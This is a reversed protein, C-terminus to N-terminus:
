KRWIIYEVKMGEIQWNELNLDETGSFSDNIVKFEGILRYQIKSNRSSAYVNHHLDLNFKLDTRKALISDISIGVFSGYEDKIMSSRIWIDQVLMSDYCDMSIFFIEENMYNLQYLKFEPGDQQGITEKIEFAPFGIKLSTKINMGHLEDLATNGLKAETLLVEKPVKFEISDQIVILHEFANQDNFEKRQQIDQKVGETFHYMEVVWFGLFGLVSISCIVLLVKKM